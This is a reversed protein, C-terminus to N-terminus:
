LEEMERVTEESLRSRIVVVTVALAGLWAALPLWPQAVKMAIFITVLFAGLAGGTLLIHPVAERWGFGAIAGFIHGLGGWILWLGTGALGKFVLVLGACAAVSSAILEGRLSLSRRREHAEALDAATVKGPTVLLASEGDNGYQFPLVAGNQRRGVVTIVDGARIGKYQVLGTIWLPGSPRDMKTEHGQLEVSTTYFAGLEKDWRARITSPAGQHRVMEADIALAPLSSWKMENPDLRLEAISAEKATWQSTPIPGGTEIAWQLDDDSDLYPREVVRSLVLMPRPWLHDPDDLKDQTTVPGSVIVVQGDRAPNTATQAIAGRLPWFTLLHVHYGLAGHGALMLAVGAITKLHTV